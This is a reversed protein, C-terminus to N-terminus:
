ALMLFLKELEETTLGDEGPNDPDALCEKMATSIVAFGARDLAASVAALQTVVDRCSRGGEVADIVANLQGRARRLRNLIRRQADSDTTLM